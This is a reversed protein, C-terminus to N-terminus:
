FFGYKTDKLQVFSLWRAVIVYLPSSCCGVLISWKVVINYFFIFLSSIPLGVIVLIYYLKVLNIKVFVSTSPQFSYENHSTYADCITPWTHTHTHTHTHEKKHMYGLGTQLFCGFSICIDTRKTWWETENHLFSSNCTSSSAILAVCPCCIIHSEWWSSRKSLRVYYSHQPHM